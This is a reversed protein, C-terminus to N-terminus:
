EPALKAGDRVDFFYQIMEFLHPSWAVAARLVASSRISISVRFRYYGFL